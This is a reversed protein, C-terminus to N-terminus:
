RSCVGIDLVKLATCRSLPDLADHPLRMCGSISLTQLLSLAGLPEISTVSECYRM